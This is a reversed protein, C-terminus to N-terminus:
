QLVSFTRKYKKNQAIVLMHVIIECIIVSWLIIVSACTNFYQFLFCKIYM